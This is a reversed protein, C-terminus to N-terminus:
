KTPFKKGNRGIRPSPYIVPMGSELMIFLAIVILLPSFILILLVSLIIELIRLM